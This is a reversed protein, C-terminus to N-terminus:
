PFGFTRIKSIPVETLVYESAEVERRIYDLPDDDHNENGLKKLYEWVDKGSIKKM